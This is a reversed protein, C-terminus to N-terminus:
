NNLILNILEKDKVKQLTTFQNNTELIYVNANIIIFLGAINSDQYKKVKINKSTLNRENPYKIHLNLNDFLYNLESSSTAELITNINKVIKPTGFGAIEESYTLTFKQLVNLPTDNKRIRTINSDIIARYNLGKNAITNQNNSIYIRYYVSSGILITLLAAISYQITRNRKKGQEISNITSKIENKLENDAYNKLIFAYKAYDDYANKFNIDTELKENFDRREKPNLKNLLYKDFLDINKNKEM